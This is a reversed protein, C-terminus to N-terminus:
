LSEKTRLAKKCYKLSFWYQLMLPSICLFLPLSPALFILGDLKLGNTLLFQLNQSWKGKM